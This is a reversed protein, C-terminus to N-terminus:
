AAEDDLRRMIEIMGVGLMIFSGWVLFAVSYIVLALKRSRAITFVSVRVALLVNVAFYALLLTTVVLSHNTIIRRVGIYKTSESHLYRHDHSRCRSSGFPGARGAASDRGLARRHAPFVIGDVTEEELCLHSSDSETTMGERGSGLVRWAWRGSREIPLPPDLSCRWRLSETPFPSLCYGPDLQMSCPM